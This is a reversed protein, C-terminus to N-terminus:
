ASAASRKRTGLEEILDCARKLSAETDIKTSFERCRQRIQASTQLQLLLKVVRGAKYTEPYLRMGLGLREVRAANDPQDHAQPVVLQPVAAKIAQACTGVGGAYVLTSCRPLIEGFPLYSFARVGEPLDAPLQEPYNTILMARFGGIRCADVSDRFFEHLTSAASGPTFVIPPPGATIFEEVEPPVAFQQRADHLVFGVLHTNRPWDPQLPAFWEPFLCIILEAQQAYNKFIGHVPRLGVSARFSNLPPCLLRDILLMDVLWFFTKKLLTPVKPGLPMRGQYGADFMSRFVAPQLNVVAFPFGIKEHAVHAGFSISSAVVVTERTCRKMLIEYLRSINPAIAREVICEFAKTKHWLRPDAVAENGEQLTGMPIFEIGAVRIQGDFFENTVITTRHGRNKLASALEIVPHVDGASGITPLIIDLKRTSHSM